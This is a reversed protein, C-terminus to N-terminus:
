PSVAEMFNITEDKLQVADLNLGEVPRLVSTISKYLVTQEEHSRAKDEIGQQLDGRIAEIKSSFEAFFLALAETMPVEFNEFLAAEWRKKISELREKALEQLDAMKIVYVDVNIKHEDKGWDVKFIGGIGRKVSGWLGPQNELRTVPKPTVKMGDKSLSCEAAFGTVKVVDPLSFSLDFGDNQFRNTLDDLISQSESLLSHNASLEFEEALQVLMRDIKAETEGLSSRLANEIKELFARAEGEVRYELKEETPDFDRKVERDVASGTVIRGLLGESITRKKEDSASLTALAARERRTSSPANLKDNLADQGARGEKFYSTISEHVEQSLANLESRAKDRLVQSLRSLAEEKSAKLSAIKQEDEKLNAIHTQLGEATSRIASSRSSLFNKLRESYFRAKSAASDIAYLAAHSHASGIIGSLPADFGSKVWLKDAARRVMEGDAVSEEWDFGFCALGFEEVWKAVAADPLAENKEFASVASGALFARKASVAFVHSEPVNNKMLRGAVLRRTTDEDPDNKGREDYRNILAFLRGKAIDSIAEIQGRLEEDADTRLQTYNLVAIVASAQSLQKTLLHRLHTQGAENPGPTDLLTLRGLSAPKGRLYSFEVEIIPLQHVESYREFPFEVGVERCLRVLDNIVKLFGFIGEVGTYREKVSSGSRVFDIVYAADESENCYASIVQQYNHDNLRKKLELVLGDVPEKNHFHLIPEAMGPTHRILTPISTMAATRNPLVEQGVIANITTSKGAKMTGVVAVVMDLSELKHAEGNLTEIGKQISESDFSSATEEGERLLGDVHKVMELIEIEMKLLRSAEKQLVELNHKQM